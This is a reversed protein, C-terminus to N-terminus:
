ALTEAIESLEEDTELRNVIEKAETGFFHCLILKLSYRDHTQRVINGERAEPHRISENFYYRAPYSGQNNLRALDYDILWSSGDPGFILNPIRVDGHVYGAEHVKALM